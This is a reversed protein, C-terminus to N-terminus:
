ERFKRIEEIIGKLFIDGFPFVMEGDTDTTGSSLVTRDGDGIPQEVMVSVVVMDIFLM